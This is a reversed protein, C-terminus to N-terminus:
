FEKAKKVFGGVALGASICILFSALAEAHTQGPPLKRTIVLWLFMCLSALAAYFISDKSEEKIAPLLASIGGLILFPGAKELFVLRTWNLMETGASNFIWWVQYLRFASLGLVMGAVLTRARRGLLPDDVSAISIVIGFLLLPFLLVAAHILNWRLANSPDVALFLRIVQFLFEEMTEGFFYAFALALSVLSIRLGLIM